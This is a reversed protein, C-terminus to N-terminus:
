LGRGRLLAIWRWFSLLDALAAAVYTLAAARLVRRVVPLEAPAVFQGREIAPLAKGFSADWEVPLTLLHMGVRALFLVLAAAVLVVTIAPSRILAGVIPAFGMVALAIREAVQVQPYLKNRLTMLVHGEAHQVAHGVEHAAVAIATLSRGDHISPSLRVALDNPSYHDRGEEAVEVSVGPLDRTDLLYRALEAGTGPMGPIPQSYRKLTYRVLLTPAYIVALIAILIFLFV